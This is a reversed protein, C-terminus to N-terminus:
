HHITLWSEELDILYCFEKLQIKLSDKWDMVSEIGEVLLM